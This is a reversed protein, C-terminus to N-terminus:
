RRSARPVTRLWSIRPAERWTNESTVAPRASRSRRRDNSADKSSEGFVHGGRASRQRRRRSRVSRRQELWPEARRLGFFVDAAYITAPNVCSKGEKRKAGRAGRTSRRWKRLRSDVSQYYKISASHLDPTRKWKSTTAPSGSSRRGFTPKGGLKGVVLLGNVNRFAEPGTGVINGDAWDV